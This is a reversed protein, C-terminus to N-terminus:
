TGAPRRVMQSVIDPDLASGGRAVERVAEAFAVPDTVREKLLYGRGEAGDALLDVAYAQEVHQSLVLVGIAPSEDRITHAARIGEDTHTPPMRVDTVAVDPSCERVAALLEEADGAQAVVEFGQQELLRVVGARLLVSDEAVVVRLRDAAPPAEGHLAALAAAAFAGASPPRDAPDKALAAWLVDDLAKPADRCRLSLSPIPDRLHAAVTDLPTTRKFPPGGALAHFLLCALSYVDARADLQEGRAQEPAIYDATGLVFGTATLGDDHDRHRTVGFDTLWAHETGDREGLLVNAPKVDRHVLGHAHAADLAAAVEAVIHLARAAPLRQERELVTALDTGDVFRMTVYLQGDEEGAHFVEVVHPHDLRAAIRCENAFRVRFEADAALAPAILKLAVPRDLVLDTARYVVGMGGRGALADIRHGAFTSGLQLAPPM